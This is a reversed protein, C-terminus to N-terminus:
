QFDRSCVIGKDSLVAHYIGYVFQVEFNLWKKAVKASNLYHKLLRSSDLQSTSIFSFLSPIEITGLRLDNFNTASSPSSGEVEPNHIVGYPHQFKLM